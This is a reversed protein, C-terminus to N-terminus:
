RYPPVYMLGGNSWLDNVSATSRSGSRSSIQNYIEEYNGVQSVVQVAFDARFASHEPQLGGDASSTAPRQSRGVPIAPSTARTSVSSGRRSPPWSRGMRGGPGLPTVTSRRRSRAAGQLLGRVHDASRRWGRERDHVQVFRAPRTPPGAKVSARRMPRGCSPTTPSCWRTSRLHRPCQVGATLNLETTTGSLVCINADDLDELTTFGTSAPVM